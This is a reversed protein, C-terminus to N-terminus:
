RAGVHIGSPWSSVYDTNRVGNGADALCMGPFGLRPVGAIFGSCGTQSTVGSTLNVKEELTMQSVLNRAKARSEAWSGTEAMEAVPM